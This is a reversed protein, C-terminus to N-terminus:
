GVAAPRRIRMRTAISARREIGLAIAFAVAAVVAGGAADILYHNGTVVIALLMLAPYLVGLARVVLPRGLVLLCSGAILAWAMHVSPMASFENYSIATGAVKGGNMIGYVTDVFAFHHHAYVLGTTLRPPAVPFNEYILIAFANTLIVTNRLLAFAERRALYVWFAVGLTVCVHGLIYVGNMVRAVDWWSLTFFPLHWARLFFMQWGPEVWLGHQAEFVAIHRANILGQVTGRQAFFGRALDDGVQFSIAILVQGLFTLVEGVANNRRLAEPLATAM